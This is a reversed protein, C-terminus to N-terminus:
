KTGRRRNLMMLLLKIVFPSRLEANKAFSRHLNTRSLAACLLRDLKQIRAMILRQAAWVKSRARKACGWNIKPDSASVDRKALAGRRDLGAEPKDAADLRESERRL